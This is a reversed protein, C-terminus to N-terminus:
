GLNGGPGIVARLQPPTERVHQRQQEERFRQWDRERIQAPRLHGVEAGPHVVPGIGFKERFRLSFLLDEPLYQQDTYIMWFPRPALREWVERRILLCAGGTADVEFPERPIPDISEFPLYPWELYNETAPFGEERREQPMLTFASPCFPPGGLFCLGSALPVELALLKPVTDEPPVMDSDLMLCADYGERHARSLLRNRGEAIYASGFVRPPSVEIGLAEAHRVMEWLAEEQLSRFDWRSAPIGLMVRM